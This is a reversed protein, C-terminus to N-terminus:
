NQRQMDRANGLVEWFPRLVIILISVNDRSRRVRIAQDSLIRAVEAPEGRHAILEQRALAIADQSRFVDFLGDCALLLFEDNHSLVMSAIEPEASILPATLDKPIDNSGMGAGSSSEAEEELMAKIGMKFSKDGFARTIALEGMVRKHLIFGGAARVRAAEDPRSPKHDSTLEVCQGGGRCLVVRSDGVNAAFLRRGMLVVTAGTSGSQPAARPSIFDKDTRLYATKLIRRMLESAADESQESHIGGRATNRSAEIAKKLNEREALMHARIQRPLNDVLYNSCEDGGHGDFVAAFSTMALETIHEKPEVNNIYKREFPPAFMLSQIVVTRDEMTPRAGIAESIGYDFRNVSFGTRGVIFEDCIALSGMGRQSYPGVLRMYSGNTSELDVLVFAGGNPKAMYLIAGHRRSLERDMICLDAEHARGFVFPCRSASIEILKGRMPGRTCHLTIVRKQLNNNEVVFVSNGAAFSAKECLEWRDADLSLVTCDKRLGGDGNNHNVVRAKGVRIAADGRDGRIQWACTLGSRLSASAASDGDHDTIRSLIGAAPGSMSDDMRRCIDDPQPSGPGGNGVTTQHGYLTWYATAPEAKGEDEDESTTFKLCLRYLSRTYVERSSSFQRGGRTWGHPDRTVLSPDPIGGNSMSTIATPNGHSHAQEPPPRQVDGRNRTGNSSSPAGRRNSAVATYNMLSNDTISTNNAPSSAKMAPNNNKIIAETPMIM